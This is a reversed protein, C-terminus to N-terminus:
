GVGAFSTGSAPIIDLLRIAHLSHKWHIILFPAPQSDLYLEQRYYYWPSDDAPIAPGQGGGSLGFAQIDSAVGHELPVTRHFPPRPELREDWDITRVHERLTSVKHRGERPRLEYRVIALSGAFAATCQQKEGAVPSCVSDHTGSRVLWPGKGTFRDHFEVSVHVLCLDTVFRYLPGKTAAELPGRIGTLGIGAALLVRRRSTPQDARSM